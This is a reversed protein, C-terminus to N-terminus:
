LIGTYSIFINLIYVLFLILSIGGLVYMMKPNGKRELAAYYEDASADKYQERLSLIKNVSWRMYFYDNFLLLVIRFLIMIYSTISVLAGFQLDPMATDMERMFMVQYMLSPITLIFSALTLIVAPGTMRRYYHYLPMFFWASLNLSLVKGGNAMNMFITFFRPTSFNNMGLFHVLESQKVGRCTLEEGSEPSVIPHNEIMETFNEFAAPNVYGNKYPEPDRPIETRKNEKEWDFGETHRSENPCVPDEEWCSKHVPTGCVPCYVKEEGNDLDKGCKDCVPKESTRRSTR